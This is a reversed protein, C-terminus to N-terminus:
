FFLFRYCGKCQVLKNHKLESIVQATVEQFCASCSNNELKVIPNNVRKYMVEYKELWEAPLMKLLDARKILQEDLAQNLEALLKKKVPVDHELALIEQEFQSKKQQSINKTQELKNWQEILISEYDHEAQKIQSISNKVANYERQNNVQDLLKKQTQLNADLERMNLEHQNVQKQLIHLDQDLEEISSIIKLKDQEIKVLDLDNKKIDLRIQNLSQDFKALEMFAALPKLQEM